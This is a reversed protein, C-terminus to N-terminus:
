AAAPRVSTVPPVTFKLRVSGSSSVGAVAAARAGEMYAHAGRAAPPATAINGLVLEIGFAPAAWVPADLPLRRVDGVVRDGARVEWLLESGDRPVLAVTDGPFAARAAAEAIGKADWEDIVPPEPETFHVPRRRGMIVIGLRAQERPM